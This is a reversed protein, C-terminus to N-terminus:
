FGEGEEKLEKEYLDFVAPNVLNKSKELETPKYVIFDFTDTYVYGLKEYWTKLTEKVPVSFLKPRLIEIVMSRAGKAQAFQEAAKVLSTGIGKGAHAFDANLLGFGYNNNSTPYVSVSGVLQGDLLALLIGHTKLTEIYAEKRMRFYNAGWIEVETQAYAAIMLDFLRDIQEPRLSDHFHHEVTLM